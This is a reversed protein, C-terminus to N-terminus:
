VAEGCRGIAGVFGGFRTDLLSREPELDVLLDVGSQENAEGWAVSGFLRINSAGYKIAVSMIDARKARLQELLPNFNQQGTPHGNM